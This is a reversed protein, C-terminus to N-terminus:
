NNTRGGALEATLLQAWEEILDDLSEGHAILYGLALLELRQRELIRSGQDAELTESTDRHSM